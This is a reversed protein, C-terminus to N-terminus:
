STVRRWFSSSFGPDVFRSFEELAPFGSRFMEASMRADKAPYVAGGASSVVQDFATLLKFTEPGTIPFDLALTVGDRPFSLLGTAQSDGFTKLVALFSGVGSREIQRLLEGIAEKAQQLVVCQYQLFGRPGYLRNWELVSDLPYFFSEYHVPEPKGRARAAWFYAANFPISTVRNVAAIPPTFPIRLRKGRPVRPLDDRLAAHNARM